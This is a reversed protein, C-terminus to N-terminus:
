SDKVLNFTLKAQLTGTIALNLIRHNVKLANKKVDRSMTQTWKGLRLPEM